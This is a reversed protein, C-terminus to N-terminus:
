NWAVSLYYLIDFNHIGGTIHFRVDMFNMKEYDQKKVGTVLAIASNSTVKVKEINVSGSDAQM